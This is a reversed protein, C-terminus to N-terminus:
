ENLPICNKAEGLKKLDEEVEGGFGTLDKSRSCRGDWLGGEEDDKAFVLYQGDLKFQAQFRMNETVAVIVTKSEVGKWYKDVEFEFIRKDGEKEVKIVTGVFVAKSNEYEADFKPIACKVGPTEARVTSEYLSSYFLSGLLIAILFLLKKM